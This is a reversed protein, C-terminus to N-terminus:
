TFICRHVHTKQLQLQQAVCSASLHRRNCMSVVLSLLVSTLVLGCIIHYASMLTTLAVLQKVHPTIIIAQHIQSMNYMMLAVDHCLGMAM